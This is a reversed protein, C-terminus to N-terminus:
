KGGKVLFNSELLLALNAEGINGGSVKNEGPQLDACEHVQMVNPWFVSANPPM